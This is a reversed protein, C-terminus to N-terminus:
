KPMSVERQSAPSSCADSTGPLFQSNPFRLTSGGPRGWIGTKSGPTASRREADESNLLTTENKSSDPRVITVLEDEEEMNVNGLLGHGNVRRVTGQGPHSQHKPTVTAALSDESISCALSVSDGSALDADSDTASHLVYRNLQSLPRIIIITLSDHGFM